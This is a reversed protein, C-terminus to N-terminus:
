TIRVSELKSKAPETQVRPGAAKYTQQTIIKLDRGDGLVLVHENKTHNTRFTSGRCWPFSPFFSSSLCVPLCAFLQKCLPKSQKQYQFSHFARPFGGYYCDRTNFLLRPRNTPDTFMSLCHPCLYLFCLLRLTIGKSAQFLGSPELLNLIGSSCSLRYM